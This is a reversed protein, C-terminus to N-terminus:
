HEDGDGGNEVSEYKEKMARLSDIYQQAAMDADEFIRNLKLAAEALSGANDIEITREALKEEAAALRSKLEDIEQSQLVLIELLEKRNLKKLENDTM